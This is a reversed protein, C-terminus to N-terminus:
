DPVLFVEGQQITALHSLASLVGPIFADPSYSAHSLIIREHHHNKMIIDHKAIYDPVRKSQIPAQDLLASLYLSSGSPSDLKNEHHTEIIVECSFSTKLLAAQQYLLRFGQSFNPVILFPFQAQQCYHQADEPSIGSTGILTPIQHKLYHQVHTKITSAATVDIVIDISHTSLQQDLCEGKQHPILHHESLANAISQGLRGYMGSILINKM